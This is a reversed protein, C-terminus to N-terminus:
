KDIKNQFTSESEFHPEKEFHAKMKLIHFPKILTTKGKESFNYVFDTCESCIAKSIFNHFFFLM